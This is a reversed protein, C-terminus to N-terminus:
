KLEKSQRLWRCPKCPMCIEQPGQAHLVTCIPSERKSPMQTKLMSEQVSETHAVRGKALNGGHRAALRQFTCDPGQQWFARSWIKMRM